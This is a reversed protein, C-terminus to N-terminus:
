SQGRGLFAADGQALALTRKSMPPPLSSDPGDEWRRANLWSAPFPIYQGGDKLWDTSGLQAAISALIRQLLEPSPALKRWAKEADAKSKKKPYVRWFHEFGDDVRQAVLATRNGETGIGTRTRILDSPTETFNVPIGPFKSATRKSLGPQHADFDMVQIVQLGDVDYWSILRVADLAILATHFDQESRPSSPFVVLKVTFADGAMRGHDDSNAVLLPYLAQAFEGLRGAQQRLAAFKRSSGLTRSILRCRAM